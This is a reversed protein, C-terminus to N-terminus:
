LSDRVQWRSGSPTNIVGVIPRITAYSFLVTNSKPQASALPTPHSISSPAARSHTQRELQQKLIAIKGQLTQIEAWTVPEEKAQLSCCIVSPMLSHLICRTLLM